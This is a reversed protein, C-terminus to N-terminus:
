RVIGYILRPTASVPGHPTAIGSLDVDELIYSYTKRNQVDQDVIQYSAGETACGEAAILSNNIKEYNDSGAEARYVNFGANDIESATEWSITVAGNGAAADLSSLTILTSCGNTIGIGDATGYDPLNDGPPNCTPLLSNTDYTTFTMEYCDPDFDPIDSRPIAFEIYKYTSAFDFSGENGSLNILDASEACDDSDCDLFLRDDFTEDKTNWSAVTIHYDAYFDSWHICDPNDLCDDSSDIYPQYGVTTQPDTDIWIRYEKYAGGSTSNWIVIDDLTMRVYVTDDDATIGTELLDIQEPFCPNSDNTDSGITETGDWDGLVGDISIGSGGCVAYTIPDASSDNNFDNSSAGDLRFAFDVVGSPSGISSLPISMELVGGSYAHSVTQSITNWATGSWQELDYQWLTGGSGWLHIRYEAGITNYWNTEGTSVNRDTDLYVLYTNGGSTAAVTGSVDIRVFLNTCDDTIFCDIGDANADTVDSAKDPSRAIDANNWASEATGDVTITTAFAGAACLSMGM